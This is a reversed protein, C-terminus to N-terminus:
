FIQELPFFIFPKAGLKLVQLFLNLLVTYVFMIEAFDVPKNRYLCSINVEIELSRMLTAMREPENDGKHRGGSRRQDGNCPARPVAGFQGVELGTQAAAELNDAGRGAPVARSEEEVKEASGVGPNYGPRQIPSLQAEEYSPPASPNESVGPLILGPYYGPAANKFTSNHGGIAGGTPLFREGGMPQLVM